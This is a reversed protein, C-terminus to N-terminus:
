KGRQYVSLQLQGHECVPTAPRILVRAFGTRGYVRLWYSTPECQRGSVPEGKGPVDPSFRATAHATAGPALRVLPATLGPRFAPIPHTPLRKGTRGYLKLNPLGTLTCTTKSRNIISLKYVINGAGASGPIVKFTGALQGGICALPGSASHAGSACGVLGAVAILAAAITKVRVAYDM